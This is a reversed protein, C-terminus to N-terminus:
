GYLKSAVIMENFMLLCLVIQKRVYILEVFLFLVAAFLYRKLLYTVYNQLM